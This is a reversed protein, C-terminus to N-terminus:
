KVKKKWNNFSHVHIQFASVLALVLNLVLAPM